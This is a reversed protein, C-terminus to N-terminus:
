TMAKDNTVLVNHRTYSPAAVEPPVDATPLCITFATGNGPESSVRITGGHQQVIGHVMALGLGTGKGVEKTTYFPEFIHEIVEPSMGCGTDAIDILLCETAKAAIGSERCAERLITNKTSITLRGGNPMADRANLCLNLLAQQLGGTDAYVTVANAGLALSVEINKGLIPGVLEALGAVVQNVDVNKRELRQQRSFGLLQRTIKAGSNAVECIQGSYRYPADEPRLQEQIAEAYGVIAQLFNNFEHAVGAALRGLAELKQSQRLEEDRKRLTEEAQKRERMETRLNENAQTLLDRSEKVRIVARLRATLVRHNLPKTVYDDAGADLGHVIDEDLDKATVLIVPIMGLQADEKLRQCVEIGNMGPMMIDLLIADPREAAAIDLAEQGGYASLVEYGQNKLMHTLVRVTDVADDVVLVKGMM